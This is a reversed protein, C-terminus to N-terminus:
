QDEGVVPVELEVVSVVFFAGEDEGVEAAGAEFEAPLGGFVGLGEVVLECVALGFSGGDGEDGEGGAQVFEV